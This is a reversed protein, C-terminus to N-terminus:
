SLFIRTGIPKGDSLAILQEPKTGNIIRASGAGAQLAEHCADLKPIMGGRITGEEILSQIEDTSIDRILTDPDNIDELLGNVDTLVVFEDAALAGAIAGAFLDGNINLDNGERDAAVCAIVPIMDADLLMNLLRPDVLEVDGVSGLDVPTLKGEIETQHMRKRATVMRGDKGSLGVAKQGGANLLRVLHGNVKGKLVMEVYEMAEPTTKRQGDVFESRIGAIGLMDRIFPGGGHVIVIRNGQQKLEIIKQILNRTLSEDLMANGGYKFVITKNM